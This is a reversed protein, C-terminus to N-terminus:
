RANTILPVQDHRRFGIMGYHTQSSMSLRRVVIEDYLGPPLETDIAVSVSIYEPVKGHLRVEATTEGAAKIRSTVLPKVQWHKRNQDDEFYGFVEFRHGPYGAFEQIGELMAFFSIEGEKVESNFPFLQIPLDFRTGGYRADEYLGVGDGLHIRGQWLMDMQNQTPTQASM